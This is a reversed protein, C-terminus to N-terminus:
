EEASVGEVRPVAEPVEVLPPILSIRTAARKNDAGERWCSGEYAGTDVQRTECLKYVTGTKIRFSLGLNDHRINELPYRAEEIDPLIMTIRQAPQGKKRLVVEFEALYEGDHRTEYRGNWLGPRLEEAQLPLLVFYVPWLRNLLLGPNM